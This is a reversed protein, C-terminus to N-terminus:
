KEYDCGFCKNQVASREDILRGCDRCRITTKFKRAEDIIAGVQYFDERSLRILGALTEAVIGEHSDSALALFRDRTMEPVYNDPKTDAVRYLASNSVSTEGGRGTSRLDTKRRSIQSIKDNQGGM